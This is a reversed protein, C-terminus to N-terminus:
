PEDGGDDDNGSEDRREFDLVQTGEATPEEEQGNDNEPRM